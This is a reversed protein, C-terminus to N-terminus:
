LLTAERLNQYNLSTNLIRDFMYSKHFYNVAKM